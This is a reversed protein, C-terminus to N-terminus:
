RELETEIKNILRKTAHGDNYENWTQNIALSSLGQNEKIKRILSETTESNYAQAWSLFDAQLGVEQQYEALDPCYFILQGAFNALSYEFPISSYDTILYDVTPLVEALDLGEFNTFKELGDTQTVSTHPHFKILLLYDEGLESTLRSFDPLSLYRGERYTPAYLIVKRNLLAPFHQTIKTLTEARWKESFYIDTRPLGIRLFVKQQVHYSNEFVQAMQDSGVVIQTFQQYVRKFRAQDHVSRTKTKADQWGFTKIAGNAHWIQIVETETNLKLDGLFPFYNDCIIIKSRTIWPIAKMLLRYTSDLPKIAFGRSAFKQAETECQKTYFIVVEKKPFSAQLQELLGNDNNPFSLLYAIQKRLPGQSIRSVMSVLLTYLRKLFQNM